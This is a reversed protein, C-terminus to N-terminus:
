NCTEQIFATSFFLNKTLSFNCALFQDDKEITDYKLGKNTWCAVIIRTHVLHEDQWMDKYKIGPLM